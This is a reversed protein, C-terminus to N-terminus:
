PALFLGFHLLALVCYAAVSAALITGVVRRRYRGGALQEAAQTIPALYRPLSQARRVVLLAAVNVAAWALGAHDRPTPPHRWSPM